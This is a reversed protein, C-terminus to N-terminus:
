DWDWEEGEQPSELNSQAIPNLTVAGVFEITPHEYNHNKSKMDTM